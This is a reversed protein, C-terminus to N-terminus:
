QPLSVRESGNRTAIANLVVSDISKSIRQSRGDCFAVQCVGGHWSGFGFYHQNGNSWYSDFNSRDPRLRACCSTGDPWFGMLSDAALMTNTSGDVQVDRMRVESGPYLVGNLAAMPNGNSDTVVNGSSDFQSTGMNGRYTSFGTRPSVQNIGPLSASPCVYVPIEVAIAQVNVGQNKATDWQPDVNGQEIGDLIAAHWPWEATMQWNSIVPMTPPSDYSIADTITAPSQLQINVSSLTNGGADTPQASNGAPFVGHQDHYTQIAIGLQHLHNLCQTQRASERASQIAPLLLAILIAIIAMVVLLEVLTFGTRCRLNPRITSRAFDVKM